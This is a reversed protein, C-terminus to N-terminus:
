NCTYERGENGISPPVLQDSQGTNNAPNIVKEFQDINSFGPFPEFDRDFSNEASGEEMTKYFARIESGDTRYASFEVLISTAPNSLKVMNSIYTATNPDEGTVKTRKMFGDNSFDGNSLRNTSLVASIRECDIMPSVNENDSNMIVEFMLSKAGPMVGRLNARENIASAIMRPTDFHNQDNLTIDQFGQDVFSEESGGISTASITRVKAGVSTGPPTSTQLNPTLTEYQINETHRAVTGGDNKTVNFFKAPFSGGGSRDAGPSQNNLGKDASMDIKLTYEDLTIPHKTTDVDNFNHFANIRRLNVGAVEYKQIQAGVKYSKQPTRQGDGGGIMFSRPGIGRTTIGTIQGDTVGTYAVIELDNIMAYGYNTTGVGVGEFTEFSSSNVVNINATSKKGYNATLTTIPTDPKIGKISIRNAQDHMGHARHNVVMHQGDFVPDVEFTSVTTASGIQGDVTTGIGTKGDLGIIASGSNFLVTGVGINFTGQVNDVKLTNTATILGVAIVDNKGNGLGITGLGVTDGVVYGSGGSTFTVLGVVGNEVIVEAVAGSGSGTLTTTQINSYKLVGSSPTYGVGPNIVTAATPDSVKAAGSVGLLTASANENGAQKIIVGPVFGSVAQFGTGGIGITAKRSLFKVSNSPLSEILNNAVSMRPSFFRATGPSGVNFKAKRLIFKMDELQSADWTTGNQSKFLSGLYPQQSILVQESDPLNATSIDVEGM